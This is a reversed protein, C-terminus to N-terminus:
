RGSARGATADPRTRASAAPHRLRHTWGVLARKARVVGSLHRRAYPKVQQDLTWCVGCKSVLHPFVCVAMHQRMATALEDKWRYQAGLFDVLELKRACADEIARLVVVSGPSYDGLSADFSSNFAYYRNRFVMGFLHAVPRGNFYLLYIRVWGQDATRDFLTRYFGEAGPEELFSSRTEGKWSKAEIAKVDDFAAGLEDSRQVIRLEVAGAKELRKQKRRLEHRVHRSRSELYADLSEPLGIIPTTDDERWVSWLGKRRTVERLTQATVSDAAIRRLALRYSGHAGLFGLLAELVAGATASGQV